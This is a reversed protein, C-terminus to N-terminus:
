KMDLQKSGNNCRNSRHYSYNRLDNEPPDVPELERENDTPSALLFSRIITSITDTRYVEFELGTLLSSLSSMQVFIVRLSM